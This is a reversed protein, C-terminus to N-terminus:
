FIDILVSDNMINLGVINSKINQLRDAFIRILM